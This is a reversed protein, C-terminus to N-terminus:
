EPNFDYVFREILSVSYNGIGKKEKLESESFSLLDNVTHISHQKLVRILRGTLQERFVDIKSSLFQKRRKIPNRFTWDLKEYLHLQQLYNIDALRFVTKQGNLTITISFFDRAM